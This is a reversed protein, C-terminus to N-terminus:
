NKLKKAFVAEEGYVTVSRKTPAEPWYLPPIGKIALPLEVVEDYPLYRYLDFDQVPFDFHTVPNWAIMFAVPFFKLLWFHFVNETPIDLYAADRAIIQPAYPYAWYFVRVPEPLPLAPDLMFDRLGDTLPGKMYRDVGQASLHGLLSRTIAQPKGLIRLTPPLIFRGAGRLIEGVGNVFRIFETDYTAGLLTNNCRHCLTRYKVGNQSLRGKHSEKTESLFHLIHHLEVGTPRYCGKPPTHDETLNGTNGCINCVGVKPGRTSVLISM